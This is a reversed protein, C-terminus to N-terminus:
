VQQNKPLLVFAIIPYVIYLLPAYLTPVTTISWLIMMASTAAILYKEPMALRVWRSLVSFLFMVYFFLGIFGTMFLQRVYDSHMGGGIMVVTEKFNATTIGIFHNIPPMQEWTEFYKEWRTMRGNFAQDSDSEGEVVLIEKGILPEIHDVYLDQAFFAGIIFIFAFV